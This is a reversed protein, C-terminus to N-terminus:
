AVGDLGEMATLVADLATKKTLRCYATESGAASGLESYKNVPAGGGCLEFHSCTAACAEIGAAIDGWLRLFAPDALMREPVGDLINGFAFDNFKPDPLGLFEPSFSSMAGDAGITLIQLPTVQANRARRHHPTHILSTVAELERWRMPPDGGQMLALFRLLFSRYAAESEPAELTAAHHSGESEEINFAIDHLGHARYFAFLRDPDALAAQSLVTLIHFPWGAAQLRRIGALTLAHSGRGGRTRRMADHFEAPGDLSIGIQVNWDQWLGIWRENIGIGNTQFGHRWRQGTEAEFLAFARGYWDPPLTMPEGGHWIIALQDPDARRLVHRAIARLVAESMRTRDNRHPLYCYHCDLNCYPTPQLVLLEAPVSPPSPGM